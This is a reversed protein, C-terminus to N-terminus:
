SNQSVTVIRSDEEDELTYQEGMVKVESNALVTFLLVIVYHTCSVSKTFVM